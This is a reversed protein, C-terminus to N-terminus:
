TSLNTTYRLRLLHLRWISHKNRLVKSTGVINIYMGKHTHVITSNQYANLFSKLLTSSPQFFSLRLAVYSLYRLYIHIGQLSCSSVSAYRCFDSKLARPSLAAVYIRAFFFPKTNLSVLYSSHLTLNSVRSRLQSSARLLRCCRSITFPARFKRITSPFFTRKM